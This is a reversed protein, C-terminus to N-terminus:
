ALVRFLMVYLSYVMEGAANSAYTTAYTIPSAADSRFMYRGSQHTATTNGTEAAGSETQAVGGDTWAITLQLSSSTTAATTVRFYWEVAYLGSGLTGGGSFDTASISANQGTLSVSNVIPPSRQIQQQQLILAQQWVPTVRGEFPDVGNRVRREDRATAIADQFPLPPPNLFPVTSM